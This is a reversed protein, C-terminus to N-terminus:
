RLYSAITAKWIDYGARNMHLGDEVFIDPRPLGDKGLMPTFVDVFEVGAHEAAYKRVKDNAARMTDLLKVRAVSPKISIFAITVDPLDRRVRTVFADFDALVQDPTRGNALDNDGAYLFVKRPKYRTVIRDAFHTSDAIQSGGFGRNVVPANPFDAALSEWLRISSSGVFIIGGPKPLAKKDAEEFRRIEPEWQDFGSATQGAACACPLLLLTLCVISIRNM